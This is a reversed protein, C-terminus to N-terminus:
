LAPEKQSPIFGLRENLIGPKAYDAPLRATGYSYWHAKPDLDCALRNARDVWALAGTHDDPFPGVLCRYDDSDRVTVYYNGPQPDPMQDATKAAHDQAAKLETELAFRQANARYTGQDMGGNFPSTKKIGREKMEARLGRLDAKISKIDRM